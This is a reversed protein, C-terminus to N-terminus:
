YSYTIKCVYKKELELSNMENELERIKQTSDNHYQTFDALKKEVIDLKKTLDEKETKLTELLEKMDDKEKKYELSDNHAKRLEHNLKNIAGKCMEKEKEIEDIEHKLKNLEESNDPAQAINEKETRVFTIGDVERTMADVEAAITQERDRLHQVENKLNNITENANKVAEESQALKEELEKVRGQLAPDVSPQSLTKKAETLEAKLKEVEKVHETAAQLRAKLDFHEKRLKELEENPKPQRAEYLAKQTTQLQEALGDMRVRSENGAKQTKLLESRLKVIEGDKNQVVKENDRLKAQM